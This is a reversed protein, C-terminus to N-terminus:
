IVFYEMISVTKMNLQNAHRQATSFANMVIIAVVVVVDDSKIIISSKMVIVAIILIIAIKHVDDDDDHRYRGEISIISSHM